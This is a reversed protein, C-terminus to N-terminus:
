LPLVLAEPEPHMQRFVRDDAARRCPRLFLPMDIGFAQEFLMVVDVTDSLGCAQIARRLGQRPQDTLAVFLRSLRQELLAEAPTMGRMQEFSVNLCQESVGLARHVDLIEISEQLHLGFYQRALAVVQAPSSADVPLILAALASVSEVVMDIM